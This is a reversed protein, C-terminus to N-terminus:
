LSLTELGVEVIAETGCGSSIGCGSVQKKQKFYTFEIGLNLPLKLPFWKNTETATNQTSAYSDLSLNLDPQQSKPITNGM